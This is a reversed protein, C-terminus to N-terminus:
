ALGCIALLREMDLYTELHASLLDFPDVRPCTDVMPEM